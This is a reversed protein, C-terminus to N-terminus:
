RVDNQPCNKMKINLEYKKHARLSMEHLFLKGITCKRKCSTSDM